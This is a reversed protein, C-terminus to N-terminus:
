AADGPMELHYATGHLSLVVRGEEIAAIQAQGIWDGVAFHRMRHRLHILASSGGPKLYTGLLQPRGHRAFLPATTTAAQLVEPPTPTTTTDDQSM